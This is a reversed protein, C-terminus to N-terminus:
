LSPKHIEHGMMSDLPFLILFFVEMAISALLDENDSGRSMAMHFTWSMRSLM